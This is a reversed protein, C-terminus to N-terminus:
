ELLCIGVDSLEFTFSSIASLIIWFFQSISSWVSTWWKIVPSTQLKSGWISKLYGSHVRILWVTQWDVTVHLYKLGAWCMALLVIQKAIGPTPQRRSFANTQDADVRSLGRLFFIVEKNFAESLFSLWESMGVFTWVNWKLWFDFSM